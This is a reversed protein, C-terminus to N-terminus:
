FCTAVPIYTNSTWCLLVNGVYSLHRIFTHYPLTHPLLSLAFCLNESTNLYNDKRYLWTEYVWSTILDNTNRGRDTFGSRLKCCFRWGTPPFVWICTKLIRTAIMRLQDHILNKYHLIAAEWVLIGYIISSTMQNSPLEKIWDEYLVNSDVSDVLWVWATVIVRKLFSLRYLLSCVM